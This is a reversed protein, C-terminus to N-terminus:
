MGRILDNYREIRCHHEREGAPANRDYSIGVLLIDSGYDKVAEQYRRDRIQELASDASQEWKLEVILVPLPSSKKPLYVVDAYGSGAPLEELMVYEDGYSFYARKIVSRLAQENNYYLPSEEEHIKEIQRAVAEENGQVTDTILQGSERVRRITDDRKVQRIARAFEQCIEQNPIHVSCTEGDYALYGLHILLTLVDDRDRFTTLDNAFGKTDVQTEVGGILETVTRGLGDFDLSIYGMLSEAASTQVWYSDFDDYLIAKMVSNPNYVSDLNRFSYGDYWKKMMTFDSGHTECLEKVEEETFGAYPAFQRPKVMTYELFDSIASQSSDKKIPLIGTMYVAAFIKSTMGSNKFLSRLFELYKRQLGPCGPAERIPADWEDIIMIFKNGTLEVGNALTAAFGEACKLGPYQETLEGSVNRQIYPVVEEVSSEGIAETMDLYIVDYRNLHERYREDEAIKLDDFLAASDCTKGYYACLMKAAFSKGFRRPRSICTLRRPTDITQNILGILGSKDVYIDNRIGSFGSNGPNLYNGM